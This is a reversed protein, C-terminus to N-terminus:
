RVKVIYGRRLLNDKVDNMEMDNPFSVELIYKKNEEALPDIEDLDVLGSGNLFSLGDLGLLEFDEIGLTKIGEIMANDDHEALSAVKNDAIMDAYEQAESDYLQRDIAVRQWGLKKIALLRGHGKTIFGSRESVVIPSRQGQHKIIKALLEIQRKPHRNANMPNEILSDIDVIEDYACQFNEV